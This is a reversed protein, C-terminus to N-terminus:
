AQANKAEPYNDRLKRVARYLKTGVNSESLSTVEAIQRNNLGSGFKLSILEQEERSLRSLCERLQEREEQKEMAEDPPLEPSSVDIEAKELSVTQRRGHVRYYDIVTNRAITFIWTSFSAKNSSFKTFNTLAKEFTGSTLDEAVQVSNVRYKIYGFVKPLFEEYLEAFTERASRFENVISV